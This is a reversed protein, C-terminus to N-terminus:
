AFEGILATRKAVVAREAKALTTHYGCFHTKGEVTVAAKYRGSRKEFSVGKVGTTNNSPVGRNHLNQSCSAGRLNGRRNNLPNRDRHDILPADLGIRKAIERHMFVTKFSTGLNITRKVRWGNPYRAAHWKWQTLFEYDVDDIITEKGQTLQITKM